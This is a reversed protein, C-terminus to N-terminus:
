GNGALQGDRQKTPASDIGDPLPQNLWDVPVDLAMAIRNRTDPRGSFRDSHEIRCIAAPTVGVMRALNAQSMRRQQRWFRVPNTEAQEPDGLRGLATELKVVLARAQELLETLTAREQPDEVGGSVEESM